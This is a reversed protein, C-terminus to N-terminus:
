GAHELRASAIRVYEAEREIRVRLYSKEHATIKEM